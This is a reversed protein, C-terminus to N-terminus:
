ICLINLTHFNKHWSNLNQRLLATLIHKTVNTFVTVVFSSFRGMLCLTIKVLRNWPTQFANNYLKTTLEMSFWAEEHFKNLCLRLTAFIETNHLYRKTNHGCLSSSSNWRNFCRQPFFGRFELVNYIIHVLYAIYRTVKWTIHINYLILM